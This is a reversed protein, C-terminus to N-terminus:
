IDIPQYSDVSKAWRREEINTKFRIAALLFPIFTMEYYKFTAIAVFIGFIIISPVLAIEM